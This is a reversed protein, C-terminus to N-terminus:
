MVFHLILKVFLFLCYFLLVLSSYYAVRLIRVKKHGLPITEQSEKLLYTRGGEVTKRLYNGWHFDSMDFRFLNKDDSKMKAWLKDVNEHKFSFKNLTFYSVKSLTYNLRKVNKVAMPKKGVCFLVLDVLSFVVTHFLFTQVDHYLKSDTFSFGYYWLIKTSPYDWACTEILQAYKQWSILNKNSGSYNFITIQDTTEQAVNWTSALIFNCVYDCPVLHCPAKKIAHVSRVIGLAIAVTMGIVGYFNDIWGPVPEEACTVVIAPRVIGIPLNKGESKILDEAITKTFVYANPWKGLLGPTINDLIEDDLSDVIQLLTRPTVLPTYFKEEIDIYPCNSYATSVYIFAKLKPMKKALKLCDWTSRVNIYAATRLPQDFKVNAAAHIVISTEAILVDETEPSIGLNPRECDGSVFVIKKRFEPNEKKLREFCPFNFLDDFREDLSRDKKPRVLLFIKAIQDFRLLKEILTKGLFGTGGLLFVTQNKFFTNIESSSMTNSQQHPRSFTYKHYSGFLFRVLKYMLFWFVAMLTYYAFFLIRLKRKGRPITDPTEKLLFKRGGVVCDHVFSNWDITDLLFEFKNKDDDSMEHWLKTVNDTDFTWSRTSFYSILALLKNLRAYNKVALTPRGICFLIFDVIYAVVTHTFFIYINHWTKNEQLKFVPYWIVKDSAANWCEPEVKKMFEDWTLESKKGFHVYNYIVPFKPQDRATKYTAAIIVNAVYDVPVLPAIADLKANLSRLVGLSAALVIGVVGYFNDIWGPIPEKISGIIIAPRVIAIPLSTGASKVLDETISKTYIYTNPWPGLVFPTIETLVDDDLINVVSLLNEPKLPPEYFDERIHPNLCNSYATSVYVFSKLNPMQKALELLDRTGRVNFAAEKLSQDFKVNAAAHIVCTVEERLLDLNQASLGLFPEQCDGDVLFVKESINIKMSKLLEFCPLDFLQDFREQSTKGKKPRLILVIKKIEPCERLLKELILKGVFGTGGTLFLTQNKFFNVIQNPEM